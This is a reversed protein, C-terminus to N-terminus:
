DNIILISLFFTCWPLSVSLVSYTASRQIQNSVTNDTTPNNLGVEIYAAARAAGSEPLLFWSLKSLSCLSSFVSSTLICAVVMWRDMM